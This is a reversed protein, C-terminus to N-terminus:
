MTRVIPSLRVDPLSATITERAVDLADSSVDVPAYLM